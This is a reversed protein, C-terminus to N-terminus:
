SCAQSEDPMVKKMQSSVECCPKLLTHPFKGQAFEGEVQLYM